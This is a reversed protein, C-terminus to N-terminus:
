IVEEEYEIVEDDGNVEALPVIGHVDIVNVNDENM